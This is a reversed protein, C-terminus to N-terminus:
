QRTYVYTGAPASSSGIAWATVDSSETLELTDGHVVGTFPFLSTPLLVNGTINAGGIAWGVGASEYFDPDSMPTGDSYVPPNYRIHGGIQNGVDVGPGTYIFDSITIHGEVIDFPGSGHPVVHYPLPHGTVTQLVYTGAVSARTYAPATSDGGCAATLILLAATALRWRGSCTSLHFSM